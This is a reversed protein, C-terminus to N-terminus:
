KVEKKDFAEPNFGWEEIESETLRESSDNDFESAYYASISEGDGRTFLRMKWGSANSKKGTWYYKKEKEVYKVRSDERTKPNAIALAILLSEDDDDLMGVSGLYDMANTVFSEAFTTEWLNVIKRYQAETFKETM